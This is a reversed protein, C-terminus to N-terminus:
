RREESAGGLGYREEAAATYDKAAKYWVYLWEGVPNGMAEKYMAWVYWYWGVVGVAGLCHREEVETAPRGYYFPLIDLTEDISYGSGQAVFNGIDCAPDGMAAYEWDILRMRDATVLFNPGYFDNHCFVPDGVEPAMERAVKSVREALLDFERPLPYGMDRLLQAIHSGEEYFDFSWPSVKGSTHLAYAMRLAQKVQSMDSYDLESAGEVYRSIKWGESPDEYVFTDDLGLDRAAGLAYAEAERNVIEDTGNGPHRYIYKTGKATFLTSLNTLGAKVPVVETIDDRCCRLTRCINDLIRSDVNAFFDRDFATLDTLYDFERIIGPDFARMVMHLEAIHEAFVQEWLKNKTEPRDYVSGLIELYCRSFERDFYAPGQMYYADSGGKEIGVVEDKDDLLLVQEETHGESFAASCYSCYNYPFFINDTYYQDSSLVYTNGLLEKVCWLSSHNNRHAYESNVVIKVDFEDELYFFAEKMYGVVVTIDNIGVKKLQRIVREILIEGRVEFMAKPKEFSLPAFRTAMGAALIVANDVRYPVLASKGKATLKHCDDLFGENTLERFAKNVSGLSIDANTSIDRQTQGSNLAFASLVEFQYKSLM